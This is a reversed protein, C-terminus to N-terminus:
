ATRDLSDDVKNGRRIFDVVRKTWPDDVDIQDVGVVRWSWEGVQTTVGHAPLEPVVHVTLGVEIGVWHLRDDGAESVRRLGAVDVPVGTYWDDPDWVETRGKQANLVLREWAADNDLTVIAELESLPAPAGLLRVALLGCAQWELGALLKQLTRVSFPVDAFWREAPQRRQREIAAAIDADLPELEIRPQVGFAALVRVFMAWSPAVAGAEYRSIAQRSLGCAADAVIDQTWWRKSREERLIRALDEM